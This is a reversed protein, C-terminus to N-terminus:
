QLWGLTPYCSLEETGSLWTHRLLFNKQGFGCTTRATQPICSSWQLVTMELQTPRHHWITISTVVGHTAPLSPHKQIQMGRLVVLDSWCVITLNGASSASSAGTTLTTQKTTCSSNTTWLTSATQDLRMRTSLWWDFQLLCLFPVASLTVCCKLLHVCVHLVSEETQASTLTLDSIQYLGSLVLSIDALTLDIHKNSTLFNTVRKHWIEERLM